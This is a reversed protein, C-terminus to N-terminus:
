KVCAEIFQKLQKEIRERDAVMWLATFGPVERDLITLMTAVVDDVRFRHSCTV